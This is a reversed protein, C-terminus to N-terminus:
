FKIAGLPWENKDALLLEEVSRRSDGGRDGSSGSPNGFSIGHAGENEIPNTTKVAVATTPTTTPETVSSSLTQELAEASSLGVPCQASEM